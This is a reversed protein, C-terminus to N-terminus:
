QLLTFILLLVLRNVIVTQFLLRDDLLDLKYSNTNKFVGAPLKHKGKYKLFCFDGM